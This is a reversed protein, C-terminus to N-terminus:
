KKKKLKKIELQKIKNDLMIGKYKMINNAIVTIGVISAVLISWSDLFSVLWGTLSAGVVNMEIWSLTNQNFLNKM